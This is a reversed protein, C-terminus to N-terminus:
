LVRPEAKRRERAAGTLGELEAALCASGIGVNILEFQPEFNNGGLELLRM